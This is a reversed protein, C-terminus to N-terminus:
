VVICVCVCVCLACVWAYVCVCVKRKCARVWVSVLIGIGGWKGRKRREQAWVSRPQQKHRLRRESSGLELNGADLGGGDLHACAWLQPQQGGTRVPDGPVAAATTGADPLLNGLCAGTFQHLYPGRM